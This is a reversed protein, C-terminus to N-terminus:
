AYKQDSKMKHTQKCIDNFKTKITRKEDGRSHVEFTNQCVFVIKM